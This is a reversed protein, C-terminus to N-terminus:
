CKNYSKRRNQNWQGLVFIYYILPCRSATLFFVDNLKKVIDFKLVLVTNESPETSELDTLGNNSDPEIELQFFIFLTILPYFFFLKFLNAWM